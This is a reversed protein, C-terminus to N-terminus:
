SKGYHDAIHGEAGLPLDPAWSPSKSMIRICEALQDEAESEPVLCIIEDHTMSIVQIGEAAIELMQDAIIKRATAQVINEQMKGGYIRTNKCDDHHVGYVWENDETPHLGPYHIMMDGPLLIGNNVFTVPHNHVSCQEFTMEPLRDQNFQWSATVMPHRNRYTYITRQAEEISLYIPEM